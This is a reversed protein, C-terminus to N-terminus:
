KNKSKLQAIETELRRNAKVVLLYNSYLQKYEKEQEKNLEELELINM